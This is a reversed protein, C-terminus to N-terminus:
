PYFFGSSTRHSISERIQTLADKMEQKAHEVEKALKWSQSVCDTHPQTGEKNGSGSCNPGYIKNAEFSTEAVQLGSCGSLLVFIGFVLFTKIM